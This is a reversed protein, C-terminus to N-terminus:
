CVSIISEIFTKLGPFIFLISVRAITRVISTKTDDTMEQGIARACFGAAFALVSAAEEGASVDDDGSVWAEGSVWSASVASSAESASKPESLPM